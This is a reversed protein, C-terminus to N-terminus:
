LLLCKRMEASLRVTEHAIILVRGDTEFDATVGDVVKKSLLTIGLVDYRSAAVIQRALLDRSRDVNPDIDHLM